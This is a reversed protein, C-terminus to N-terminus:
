GGHRWGKYVYRNGQDKPVWKGWKGIKTLIGGKQRLFWKQALFHLFDGWAGQFNNASNDKTSESFDRLSKQSQPIYFKTMKQVKRGSRFNVPTEFCFLYRKTFSIACFHFLQSKQMGWDCFLRRSKEPKKRKGDRFRACVLAKVLM